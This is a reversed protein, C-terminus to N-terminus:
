SDTEQQQFDPDDLWHWHHMSLGSDYSDGGERMLVKPAIAHIEM